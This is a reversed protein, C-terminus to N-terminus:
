KVPLNSTEAPSSTSLKKTDILNTLNEVQRSNSTILLPVFRMGWTNRLMFFDYLVLAVEEHTLHSLIDVAGFIDVSGIKNRKMAIKNKVRLLLNRNNTKLIVTFLDHLLDSKYAIDIAEELTKAPDIQMGEIIKRTQNEDQFTLPSQCFQIGKFTYKKM